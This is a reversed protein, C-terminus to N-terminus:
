GTLVVLRKPRRRCIVDRPRPQRDASMELGVVSAHRAKLVQRQLAGRLFGLLREYRITLDVELHEIQRDWTLSM